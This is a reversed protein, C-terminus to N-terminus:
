SFADSKAAHKLMARWRPPSIGDPPDPEVRQHQLTRLARKVADMQFKREVQAYLSLRLATM